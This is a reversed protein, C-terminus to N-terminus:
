LEERLAIRRVSSPAHAPSGYALSGTSGTFTPSNLIPKRGACRRVPESTVPEGTVGGGGVEIPYKARLVRLRARLRDAGRRHLLHHVIQNRVAELPPAHAAVRDDIWVLHLGYSSRVPGSWAQLPAQAVAAAFGPGFIREIQSRSVSALHAGRVFPDGLGAGARRGSGSAAAAGAPRERGERGRRRPPRREPLRAHLEGAGAGRTRARARRLLAAGGGGDASGVAGAQRARAADDRDPIPPDGYRQPGPGGGAGRAADGGRRRLLSRPLARAEAAAPPRSSRRPGARAGSGRPLSGRRRDGPRHPGTGAAPDPASGHEDRWERRLADVDQATFVIPSRAQPVPARLARPWSRAAFLLGGAALFHLLPSRLLHRLWRRRATGGDAATM